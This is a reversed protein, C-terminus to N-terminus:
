LRNFSNTLVGTRAMLRFSGMLVWFESTDRRRLQALFDSLEQSVLFTPCTGAREEHLPIWVTRDQPFLSPLEPNKDKLFHIGFRPQPLANKQIFEPLRSLVYQVSDYTHAGDLLLTHPGFKVVEFRGPLVLQKLAEEIVSDISYGLMEGAMMALGVSEPHHTGLETQPALVPDIGKQKLTEFVEPIQDVPTLLPVGPRTIGLKHQIIDHLTPGLVDVHEMEIHTLITLAKNELVNTADNQGGWGCEVVALDCNEEKFYEFASLTQLEFESLSADMQAIKEKLFDLKEQSIPLGNVQIMETENLIAPSTFLGVREGNLEAVKALLFATTGKGKSGAIHVTPISLDGLTKFVSRVSHLADM